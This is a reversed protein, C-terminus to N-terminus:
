DFEITILRDWNQDILRAEKRPIGNRAEDFTRVRGLLIQQRRPLEDLEEEPVSSAFSVLADLGLIDGKAAAGVTMVRDGIKAFERADSFGAKKAEFEVVSLAQDGTREMKWITRQLIVVEGKDDLAKGFDIPDAIEIFDIHDLHRANPGEQMREAADVFRDIATQDLQDAAMAMGPLMAMVAWIRGLM